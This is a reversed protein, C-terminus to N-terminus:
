FKAEVKLYLNHVASSADSFTDEVKYLIMAQVNSNFKYGIGGLINTKTSDAVTNMGLAFRGMLLIPMDILSKFNFNAWVDIVHDKNTDNDTTVYAYNAGVKILKSKWAIGAGCYLDNENLGNHGNTRVFAIVSLEEIPNVTILGYLAKSGDTEGAAIDKYGEGATIAGTFTVIKLINLSLNWGLDASNDMKQAIKSSNDFYNKTVWRMGGLKDTLGLIPTGVMGLQTEIKFLNVDMKWQLYGYKIYPTFPTDDATGNTENGIIDTTIRMSFGAGIKKKYTFYARELVFMDQTNVAAGVDEFKLGMYIKGKITGWKSETDKAFSLTAGLIM